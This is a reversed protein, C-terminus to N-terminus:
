FTLGLTEVGTTEVKDVGTLDRDDVESSGTEISVGNFKALDHLSTAKLIAVNEKALWYVNRFLVVFSYTFVTVANKQLQTTDVSQRHVASHAHRGISDKKLKECGTSAWVTSAKAKKCHTCIMSSSEHKYQLWPFSKEWSPNYKRKRSQLSLSSPLSSPCSSLEALSDTTFDDM